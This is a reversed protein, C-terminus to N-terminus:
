FRFVKSSVVNLWFVPFVIPRLKNLNPVWATPKIQVNIQTMMQAHVVLGLTPEVLFRPLYIDATQDLPAGLQKWLHRFGYFHPISNFVPAGGNCLSADLLGNCVSKDPQVCYCNSRPTLEYESPQIIYEYM